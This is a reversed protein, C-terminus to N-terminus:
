RDDHIMPLYIQKNTTSTPTPTSTPTSTSTPTPTSSPTLMSTSIPISTPTPNYVLIYNPRTLQDSGSSGSVSLGIRHSGISNYTHTPNQITSNTGDGFMWIWSSPNGTSADTCQITLPALGDRPVCVFNAVPSLTPNGVLNLNATSGMKWFATQGIKRGDTAFTIVQDIQGGEIVGVTNPDDAPIDIVYLGSQGDRSFVATSAYETGDILARLLTGDFAPSGDIALTGWVTTPPLPVAPAARGILAYVVTFACFIFLFTLRMM